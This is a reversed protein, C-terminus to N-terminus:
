SWYEISNSAKDGDSVISHNLGVCPCSAFTIRIQYKQHSGKREKLRKLGVSYQSPYRIIETFSILPHESWELTALIRCIGLTFELGKSSTLRTSM